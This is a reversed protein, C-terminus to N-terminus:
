LMTGESKTSGPSPFHACNEAEEMERAVRWFWGASGTYWTWGAEGERGPAATVDAALVFPEAEYRKLDRGDPLLLALVDLAEARRGRRLLARALWIGAHTYQGGNERFGAGYSVLYGPRPERETYPPDFLKVLRNERDVLREFAASLAKDVRAPEAYPSLAAWSQPLSDIRGEGGLAEGSATYGRYYWRGGWAANAARGIQRASDHYTRSGPLELRELLDAFGDCCLSLFWGLWVSEGDVADLSDNWDGSGFFPLGHAGLGRRLSCDLASRAHDLVPARNESLGPVEYRDRETDRLPPSSCYPLSRECFTLDGTFAVYECLAWVLWLLDDSCRTRVGKDGAPHAHWWHMVDGEEYQHRCADAIRERALAPDVPLLNVADQLQDRFGFAGGSQYLSARAFLRCCLAQYVAWRNVYRQVAESESRLLVRTIRGRWFARANQLASRAGAPRLLRRLAEESCCGLALVTEEEGEVHLLLAPPLFDGPAYSPASCGFLLRLGPLYSEPNEALFLGDRYDARLSSTDPGLLPRLAFRLPLGAAGEILLVLADDEPPVFVTTSVTQGDLEKEWVACGPLFHVLCRRGDNAAFLSVPGQEKEVWLRVPANTDRLEEMPATLRMERANEQWLAAPGIDALIAGFRENSLPLQWARGPLDDLVTFCFAEGEQAHEPVTGPLRPRSLCPPELPHFRRPAEGPSYVARSRVADAADPGAVHVGGRSGLLAELDRRSLADAIKRAAPRRYEGQESSLYVLESEFGCSKLLLWRGLLPLAEVSSADACLLPFDGSIGHPWLERRPAALVPPTRLFSLLATAEGIESANLELRVAAASLMNGREGGRLIREAGRLASEADSDLCLAFRFQVTEGAALALSVRASVLPLRLDCSFLLPADSLLCLWLGPQEGRALRHLLLAGGREEAELGLKWFASHAAYDAPRALVPCFSLELEGTVARGGTLFLSRREGLEGSAASLAAEWDVGGCRGRWLAEEEGFEWHSSAGAPFLAYEAGSLRLTTQMGVPGRLAADGYVLTQRAMARSRGRGDFLLHYAGNSLLSLAEGGMSGEGRLQWREERRLSPREPERSRDRRLVQGDPLREELLPRFAAMEPLAMFRRQMRKEGLANDAALLSMGIHHAMYCQVREGEPGRCRLPTFDLAEMFGYRGRAGFRELRRLNKVAGLPDLTLMLFSSYPSVVLDLDQGRKLALASCGNAKYRYNLAADLSYFASESVGWPVGPPVRRKQVYLCFRSSEYLLSGRCYPLFLEPMRYEFMTGTWSALGRYGDKQLQGRSLRRWHRLPVDGRALALYSTLMAESALLDYWGGRGRLGVPDYCIYFLGRGRDYLFSFDMEEALALVRQAAAEVGWERLAASLTLLCACLNGSDVTSLYPPTLPTLSRTDYWNYFHGRHRPLRELTDLALAIRRLAEDKELLGLDVGAALSLLALGFNTPSSRHALGVPPQEQFNDPPLFHDEPGMTELYYSLAERAASLLYERDARGLAPDSYAPLSLAFSVLPSLLWFVGATRGIIVPSFLLLPLAFPLCLGQARLHAGLGRAGQGAQASTQWQLLRRHSVLMRWLSLAIASLNVGAEVPLLWLRLFCSVIAGGVGTLLRTFRRLRPGERRNLGAEALSLLLRCLLSLLAAWAAAALISPFFFGALLALLTLPAVLSRRLSDFLRWRDLDSLDRCFLWPLNQWDGRTWRHQRRFYALPLSPFADIFAADGCWAGRLFAGELADHSLVRGEPLRKETCALLCHADLLGKGAFGGSGFADMYLEGCLGGYPDSGRGSAFVLSFDTACASELESDIRPHILGHGRAVVGRGEDLVPRNLPHLMAGILEGAAGPYLRTDSDLTLIYRTGRLAERDGAVRLGSEGTDLLRALELLAGRKREWGTWSEGDFRRPRTFLCFGGGYKENLARVVGEAADLLEADADTSETEAAPLDALLGFLLNEGERRSALRLEELREAQKMAGDPDCLLASVVCVTKGEPPVGGSLDMRPLRRPLVLRLLVNDLLAKVLESVPLLLLLWAPVSRLAFAPLMSFFLTLLVNAAIYARERAPSPAQFLYFGVHQGEARAKELLSAAFVHEEAGARRALQAIQLLYSRRTEPDMNPFVGGPDAALIAQCRDAERLLPEFDLASFLRLSSFLAELAATYPSTDAARRLERCVQAIRDIVAARLALPFLSLEEHTLVTVSQFGRLFLRCRKESIYGEGAEALARCLALLLVGESCLRLRRARRLEDLACLAERRALYRNDLLWECAPPVASQGEFRRRIADTSREICRLNQRLERAAETGRACGEPKLLRATSAGFSELKEEDIFMGDM